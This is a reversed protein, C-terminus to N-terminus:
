YKIFRIGLVSPQYCNAQIFKTAVEHVETSETVKQKDWPLSIQWPSSKKAKVAKIVSPLFSSGWHNQQEPKAQPLLIWIAPQTSFSVNWPFHFYM